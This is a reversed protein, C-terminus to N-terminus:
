RRDDPHIHQGLKTLQRWRQSPTPPGDHLVDVHGGADHYKLRVWTPKDFGTDIVTDHGDFFTWSCWTPETTATGDTEM